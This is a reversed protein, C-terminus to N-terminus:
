EKELTIKLKWGLTPIKVTLSKVDKKVTASPRYIQSPYDGEFEHTQGARNEGSNPHKRAQKTPKFGSQQVADSKPPNYIQTPYFDKFLNEDDRDSPRLSRNRDTYETQIINKKITFVVALGLFMVTFVLWLFSFGIVPASEVIEDQPNEPNYYVPTSKGVPYRDVMGQAFRKFIFTKGAIGYQIRNGSLKKDAVEYDFTIDINYVKILGLLRSDHETLESKTIIGIVSPWDSTKQYQLFPYISLVFFSVGLLVFFNRLFYLFKFDM